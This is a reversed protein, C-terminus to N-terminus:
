GHHAPSAAAGLSVSQRPLGSSQLSAEPDFWVTTKDHIRGDRGQRSGSVAAKTTCTDTASM